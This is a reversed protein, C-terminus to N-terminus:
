EEDESDSDSYLYSNSKRRKDLASKKIQESIDESTYPELKNLNMVIEEGNFLSHDYLNKLSMLGKSNDQLRDFEEKLLLFYSKEDSVLMKRHIFQDIFQNRYLLKNDIKMNRDIFYPNTTLTYLNYKIQEELLDLESYIAHSDVYRSDIATPGNFEGRMGYPKLLVNVQGVYNDSLTKNRSHATQYATNDISVSSSFRHKTDEVLALYAKEYNYNKISNMLTGRDLYSANVIIGTKDRKIKSMDEAHDDIPKFCSNIELDYYYNDKEELIKIYSKEDRVTRLEKMKAAMIRNYRNFIICKDAMMGRMIAQVQKSTTYSRRVIKIVVRMKREM